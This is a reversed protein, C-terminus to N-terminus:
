TALVSREAEAVVHEVKAAARRLEDEQRGMYQSLASAHHSKSAGRRRIEASVDEEVRARTENEMRQFQQQRAHRHTHSVSRGLHLRRLALEWTERAKTADRLAEASPGTEGSVHVGVVSPDAIHGPAVSLVTAKFKRAVDREKRRWLIYAQEENRLLHLVESDIADCESSYRWSRFKLTGYISAAVFELTIIMSLVAGETEQHFLEDDGIDTTLCARPDGDVIVYHPLGLFTWLLLIVAALFLILSWFYWRFITAVCERTRYVAALWGVHLYAKQGIQIVYQTGMVVLLSLCLSGCTASMLMLILIYHTKSKYM